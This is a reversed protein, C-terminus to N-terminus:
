PSWGPWATDPDAIPGTPARGRLAALGRALAAELDLATARRGTIAGLHADIGAPDDTVATAFQGCTAAWGWPHIRGGDLFGDIRFAAHARTATDAALPWAFVAAEPAGAVPWFRDLAPDDSDTVSADSTHCGLCVPDRHLYAAEFSAGADDRRALEAALPDLNAAPIPHAILSFLQARWLPTLDDLDIASRALDLLTFPAGDGAATAPQDRVAAALAAGPAPGRLAQGWCAAESQVDTRQVHLADIAFDVWRERFEARAMIARAVLPRPADGAAAAARYLDVYVDSRTRASRAAAM